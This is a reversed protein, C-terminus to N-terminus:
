CAGVWPPSERYLAVSLGAAWIHERVRLKKKQLQRFCGGRWSRWGQHLLEMQCSRMQSPTETGLCEGERVSNRMRVTRRFVLSAVVIPFGDNHKAWPTVNLTLAWISFRANCLLPATIYLGDREKTMWQFILLVWGVKENQNDMVRFSTSFDNLTHSPSQRSFLHSQRLEGGCVFYERESSLPIYLCTM